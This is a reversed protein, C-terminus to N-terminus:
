RAGTAGAIYTAVICTPKRDLAGRARGYRRTQRPDAHRAYDQMDRLSCGADLRRLSGPVRMGTAMITRMTASSVGISVSSSCYGCSVASSM